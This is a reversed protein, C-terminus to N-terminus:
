LRNGWAAKRLADADIQKDKWIGALAKFDAKEAFTIPLPV